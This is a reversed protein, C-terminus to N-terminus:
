YVKLRIGKGQGKLKGVCFDADLDPSAGVIAYLEFLCQRKTM